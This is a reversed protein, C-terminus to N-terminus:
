RSVGLRFAAARHAALAGGLLLPAVYLIPVGGLYVLTCYWTPTGAAADTCFGVVAMSAWFVALPMVPNMRNASVRHGLVLGTVFNTLALMAGLYLLTAPPLETVSRADIVLPQIGLLAGALRAAVYVAFWVGLGVGLIRLTRGRAEGFAQFFMALCVGTLAAAFWLAGRTRAEETLDGAMTEARDPPSTLSLVGEAILARHM